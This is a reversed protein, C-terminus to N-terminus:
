NHNKNNKPKRQETTMCLNQVRDAYARAYDRNRGVPGGRFLAAVQWTTTAKYRDAYFQILRYVTKPNSLDGGAYYCDSLFGDTLNWPNEAPGNEQAHLADLFKGPNTKWIDQIKEKPDQPAPKQHNQSKQVVSGAIRDAISGLIFDVALVVIFFIGILLIVTAIKEKKERQM